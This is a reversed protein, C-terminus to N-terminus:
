VIGGMCSWPRLGRGLGCTSQAPCTWRIRWPPDVSSRSSKRRMGFLKSSLGDSWGSLSCYIRRGSQIVVEHLTNGGSFDSDRLVYTAKEGFGRKYIYTSKPFKTCIDESSDNRWCSPLLKLGEFAARNSLSPRPWDHLSYPPYSQRGARDVVHYYYNLLILQANRFHKPGGRAFGVQIGRVGNLAWM